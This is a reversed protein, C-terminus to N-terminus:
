RSLPLPIVIPEGAIRRNIFRTSVIYGWADGFARGTRLAELITGKRLPIGVVYKYGFFLSGEVGWQAVKELNTAVRTYIGRTGGIPTKSPVFRGRQVIKEMEEKSVARWATEAGEEVAETAGRRVLRESAESAAARAGGRGPIM